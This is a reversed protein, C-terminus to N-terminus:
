NCVPYPIRELPGYVPVDLCWRFRVGGSGLPVYRETILTASEEPGFACYFSAEVSEEQADCDQSEGM